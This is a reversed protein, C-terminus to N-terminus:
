RTDVPRYDLTRTGKALNCPSCLPQINDITNSGGAVLPVVHDVTLFGRFGCCVCQNNYRDCLLMWQEGTFHDISASARRRQNSAVVQEPHRLRWRRSAIASTTMRYARRRHGRARKNFRILKKSRAAIFRRREPNTEGWKKARAKYTDANERYHKRAYLRVQEPNAERWAKVRARANEPNKAARANNDARTCTKCYSYLGDKRTALKSFYECPKTEGCKRCLKTPSALLM